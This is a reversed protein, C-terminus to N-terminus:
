VVSKRDGGLVSAPILSNQLPKVFKKILNTALLSLLLISILNIAGWASFDWFNNMKM